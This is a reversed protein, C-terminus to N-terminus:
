RLFDRRRPRVRDAADPLRTPWAGDPVGGISSNIVRPWRAEARWRVGHRPRPRARLDAAAGEGDRRSPNRVPRSQRRTGRSGRTRARHRADGEGPLPPDVHKVDVAVSGRPLPEPVTIETRDLTVTGVLLPGASLSGTLKLDADFRAAVLSGDVYRARAVKLALDIPFGARADLGVSGMPLFRGRAARPKCGKWWSATARSPRPLSCTACCSAPIPTSM